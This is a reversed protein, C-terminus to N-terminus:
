AVYFAEGSVLVTTDKGEHKAQIIQDKVKHIQTTLEEGNTSEVKVVTNVNEDRSMVGCNYGIERATHGLDGTLM